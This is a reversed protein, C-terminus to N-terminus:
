SAKSKQLNLHSYNFSYKVQILIIIVSLPNKKKYHKQTKQNNINKWPMEHINYKMIAKTWSYSMTVQSNYVKNVQDSTFSIELSIFLIIIRM